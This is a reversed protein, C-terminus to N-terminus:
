VSLSDLDGYTFVKARLMMEEVSKKFSLMGFKQFDKLFLANGKQYNQRVLVSLTFLQFTQKSLERRDTQLQPVWVCSPPFSFRYCWVGFYNLM